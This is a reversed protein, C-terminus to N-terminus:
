FLSNEPGYLHYFGNGLVKTVDEASAAIGDNVLNESIKRSNMLYTQALDAGKSHQQFLETFYIKLKEDKKRDRSLVKWPLFNSPLEGLYFDCEKIISETIPIYTKGKLDFVSVPQNKQYQFFGDKQSGDSFQGGTAGAQLMSQVFHSSLTEKEIYRDMTELIMQFVDLGVYDILQFIGMPRIMFDQTVKNIIVMSKDQGLTQALIEMQGLGYLGDRIFHGNGIFGAIDNSPVLIKKLLKGIEDSIRKFEVPTSESTIVEVLRQVAPPNYFHYGILRGELNAAKEVVSIPISSTNTFFLTEPSCNAALGSLVQQKLELKEFVAEFILKSDKTDDFNSTPNAILLARNVYEDIIEANDVLDSRSALVNRLGVINKEAYRVLQTKLYSLLGKLVQQNRDVLNLITDPIKGAPNEGIEIRAMEQLLLLSIGSGMKGAAGIVSVNKLVQELM